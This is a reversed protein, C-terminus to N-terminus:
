ACLRLYSKRIDRWFWMCHPTDSGENQEKIPYVAKSCTGTIEIMSSSADTRSAVRLSTRESPYMARVKTEASSNKRDDWTHSLEQKIESTLIGPILPTSSWLCKCIRPHWTGSMKMVDTESSLMRVCANFAPATQKRVLGTSVCVNILCRSSARLLLSPAGVLSNRAGTCRVHLLAPRYAKCQRLAPAARM